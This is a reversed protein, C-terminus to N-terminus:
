HIGKRWAKPWKGRYHTYLEIKVTEGRKNQFFVVPMPFEWAVRTLVGEEVFGVKHELRHFAAVREKFNGSKDATYVGYNTGDRQVGSMLPYKEEDFVGLCLTDNHVTKVVSKMMDEYCLGAIAIELFERDDADTCSYVEYLGKVCKRSVLGCDKKSKTYCPDGVIVRSGLAITGVKKSNM